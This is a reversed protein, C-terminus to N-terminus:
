TIPRFRWRRPTPTWATSTGWPINGAAIYWTQGDKQNALANELDAINHIRVVDGEDVEPFEATEDYRSSDFGDQEFMAQGAVVQIDFLGIAGQYPNGAGERMKVAVNLIDTQGAELLAQEFVLKDGRLIEAM